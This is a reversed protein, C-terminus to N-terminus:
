FTIPDDGDVPAGLADAYESEMPPPEERPPETPAPADAPMYADFRLGGVKKRGFMVNPDVYLIVQKGRFHNTLSAQDSGPPDGFQDLLFAEATANAVMGKQKSEFYLIYKEEDPGNDREMTEIDVRSITVPVRRYQRPNSGEILLDEKAVYRSESQGFKRM